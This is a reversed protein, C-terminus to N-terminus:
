YGRQGDRPADAGPTGTGPAMGPAAGPATHMAPEIRDAAVYVRDMGPTTAGPATAAGPRRDVAPDTQDVAPQTRTAPQDMRTRDDWTRVEGYVDVHQGVRILDDDGTTGILGAHRVVLVRDDMAGMGPTAGPAEPQTRDPTAGPTGPQAPQGPTGPRDMGPAAGLGETVYFATDGLVEVIEVNLLRVERGELRDPDVVDTLAAVTTIPQDDVDVAYPDVTAPDRDPPECAVVLVSLFLTFCLGFLFTRRSDGILTDSTKITVDTSPLTFFLQLYAACALVRAALM